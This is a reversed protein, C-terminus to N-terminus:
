KRGIVITERMEDLDTHMRLEKEDIMNLLGQQEEPSLSLNSVGLLIYWKCGALHSLGQYFVTKASKSGGLKLELMVYETWLSECMSGISTSVGRQFAARVAEQSINRRAARDKEFLIHQYINIISSDGEDEVLDILLSRVRDDINFRAENEIFLDMFMDNRPFEHISEMALDRFVSPNYAPKRKMHHRMLQARSQHLMEVALRGEPMSSHIGEMSRAYSAVAGEIDHGTEIYETLAILECFQAALTENRSLIAANRGESLYRTRRLTRTLSSGMGSIQAINEDGVTLMVQSARDETPKDQMLSWIWSHWLSVRVSGHSPGGMNLATSWVHQAAVPEGLNHQVLGYANYLQLSSSHKKLLRRAAKSVNEPDYHLHLALYYEAIYGHEMLELAPSGLICELTRLVWTPDALVRGTFADNFLVATTALRLSFAIAKMGHKAPGHSQLFPDLWFRRVRESGKIALPPLGLFCLYAQVVDLVHLGRRLMPQLFPEIDAFLVTHFLDESGVDDLTRGPHQLLRAAEGEKVALERVSKIHAVKPVEQGAIATETAPTKVQSLFGNWGKAGPEGIRPAESEWFQGFADVIPTEDDPIGVPSALRLELLAQWLAEGMEHYGAQRFLVTLRLFIHLYDSSAVDPSSSTVYTLAENYLQKCKEFSFMAINFQVFDLRRLWLETRNDTAEVAQKWKADVKKPEWIRSGDDMYGSWLRYYDPSNKDVAAIAKEYIAIRVDALSRRGSTILKAYSLANEGLSLVNEQYQILDLWAIADQPQIRVANNLKLHEERIHKATDVVHDLPEEVDSTASSEVDEGGGDASPASSAEGDSSETQRRKNNLSIYNKQSNSRKAAHPDPRVLCLTSGTSTRFEHGSIRRSSDQDHRLELALSKDTTADRDIRYDPAGLVYGRGSRYYAPVNYQYLYGYTLNDLDGRLDTQFYRNETVVPLSRPPSRERISSIVLRSEREKRTESSHHNDRTVHVDNRPKTRQHDNKKARHGERTSPRDEYRRDDRPQPSHDRRQSREDERVPLAERRSKFSSFRPVPKESGTSMPIDDNESPGVIKTDYHILSASISAPPVFARSSRSALSFDDLRFVARPKSFVSFKKKHEDSVAAADDM